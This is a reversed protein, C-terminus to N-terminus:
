KCNCSVCSVDITSSTTPTTQSSQTCALNEKFDVYFRKRSDSQDSFLVDLDQIVSSDLENNENHVRILLKQLSNHFEIEREETITTPIDLLVAAMFSGFLKGKEMGFKFGQDFGSQFHVEEGKQAGLRYGHKAIRELAVVSEMIESGNEEYIDDNINKM